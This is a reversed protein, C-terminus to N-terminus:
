GTSRQTTRWYLVLLYTGLIQWAGWFAITLVAGSQMPMFTLMLLIGLPANQIGVEISITRCDAPSLSVSAALAYACLLAVCHHLVAYGMYQTSVALPVHLNDKFILVIVVAIAVLAFGSTFPAVTNYFRKCQTGVWCGLVLPLLINFVILLAFQLPDIGVSSVLPAVDPHLSAYISFNIPTLIASLPFGVATLSVSMPLNGKALFTFVNSLNGGPVCGVLILGLAVAPQVPLAMTFLYTVFPLLVFQALLGILATKPAQMVQKFHIVRLHLSVAFMSIVIIANLAIM